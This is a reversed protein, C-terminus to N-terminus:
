KLKRTAKKQPLNTINSLVHQIEPIMYYKGKQFLEEPSYFIFDFM